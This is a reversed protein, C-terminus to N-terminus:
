RPDSQASDRAMPWKSFRYIDVAPTCVEDWNSKLQENCHKINLQDAANGHDIAFSFAKDQSMTLTQVTDGLEVIAGFRAGTVNTRDYNGLAVKDISYM